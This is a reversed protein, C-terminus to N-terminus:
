SSAYNFIAIKYSTVPSGNGSALPTWAIKVNTGSDSIVLPNM